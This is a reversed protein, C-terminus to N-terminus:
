HNYFYYQWRFTEGRKTPLQGFDPLEPSAHGDVWVINATGYLDSRKKDHWRTACKLSDPSAGPNYNLSTVVYQEHDMFFPTINPQRIQMFKTTGHITWYVGEPGYVGGWQDYGKIAATGPSNPLAAQLYLCMYGNMGYTVRKNASLGTDEPQNLYASGYFKVNKGVPCTYINDKNIIRNASTYPTLSGPNAQPTGATNMPNSWSWSAPPCWDENDGGWLKAAFGLQKLNSRCVVKQAQARARGLAPMLVALLTAIISIVVLLEVLTFGKTKKM